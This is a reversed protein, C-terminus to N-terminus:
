IISTGINFLMIDTNFDFLVLVRRSYYWHKHQNDNMRNNFLM